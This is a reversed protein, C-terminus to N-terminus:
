SIGCTSVFNTNHHTKAFAIAARQIHTLNNDILLSINNGVAPLEFRGMHLSGNKTFAVTRVDRHIFHSNTADAGEIAPLVKLGQGFVGHVGHVFLQVNGRPGSHRQVLRLDIGETCLRLGDRRLHVGHLPLGKNQASGLDYCFGCM